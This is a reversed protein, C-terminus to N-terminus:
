HCLQLGQTKGTKYYGFHWFMRDMLSTSGCCGVYLINSGSPCTERMSPLHRFNIDNLNQSFKCEKATAFVTVPNIRKDMEFWYVVPSGVKKFEKGLRQWVSCEHECYQGSYAVLEGTRFRFQNQICEESIHDLNDKIKSNFEKIVEKM